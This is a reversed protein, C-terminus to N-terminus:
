SRIPNGRGVDVRGKLPRLLQLSDSPSPIASNWLVPRTRCIDLHYHFLWSNCQPKDRYSCAQLNCTPEITGMTWKQDEETISIIWKKKCIGTRGFPLWKRTNVIRFYGVSLASRLRCGRVTLLLSLLLSLYLFSHYGKYRTRKQNKKM